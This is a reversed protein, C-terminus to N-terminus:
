KVEKGKLELYHGVVSRVQEEYGKFTFGMVEEGRRADIRLRRTLQVGDDKLVGQEVAKKFERGIVGV